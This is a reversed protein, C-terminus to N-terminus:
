ISLLFLIVMWCSLISLNCLTMSSQQHTQYYIYKIININLIVRSMYYQVCKKTKINFNQQNLIYDYQSLSLPPLPFGVPFFYATTFFFNLLVTSQLFINWYGEM